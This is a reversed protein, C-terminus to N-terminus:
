KTEKQKQQRRLDELSFSVQFSHWTIQNNEWKDAKERLGKSEM